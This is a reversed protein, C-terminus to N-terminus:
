GHMSSFTINTTIFHNVYNKKNNSNRYLNRKWVMFKRKTSSFFSTWYALATSKESIRYSLLKRKFSSFSLLIAALQLNEVRMSRFPYCRRSFKSLIVKIRNVAIDTTPCMPIFHLELPFEFHNRCNSIWPEDILIKDCKLKLKRFFISRNM